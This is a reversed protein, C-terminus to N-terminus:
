RAFSIAVPASTVIWRVRSTQMSEAAAVTGSVAASSSAARSVRWMQWQRAKKLLQWSHTECREPVRSLDACEAAACANGCFKERFDYILARIVIVGVLFLRWSGGDGIKFRGGRYGVHGRAAFNDDATARGFFNNRNGARLERKRVVAFFKEERSVIGLHAGLVGDHEVIEVGGAGFIQNM